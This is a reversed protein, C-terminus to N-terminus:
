VKVTPDFRLWYIYNPKAVSLIATQIKAPTNSTLKNKEIVINELVYQECVQHVLDLPVVQKETSLHHEIKELLNNLSKKSVM